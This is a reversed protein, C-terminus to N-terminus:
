AEETSCLRGCASPHYVACYALFDNKAVQVYARARTGIAPIKLAPLRGADIDRMIRQRSIVNRGYARNLAAACDQTSLEQAM